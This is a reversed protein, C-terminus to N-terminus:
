DGGSRPRVQYPIIAESVALPREDRPRATELVLGRLREQWRTRDAPKTIVVYPGLREGEAPALPQTSAVAHLYEGGKSSTVRILKREQDPVDPEGPIVRPQGARLSHDSEADNPLLQVVSDPEVSWVGVFCDRDAEVRISIEDGETLVTEGQSGRTGGIFELKLAFDGRLLRGDPHVAAPAAPKMSAIVKQSAEDSWAATRKKSLEAVSLPSRDLSSKITLWTLPAILLLAAATGIAFRFRRSGLRFVFDLGHWRQPSARDIAKKLDVASAFRQTPDKALCRMCLDSVDRPLNPKREIPPVINGASAAAWLSMADAAQHPPRGTLLAYLVAGLGFIDSRPDIREAEGRAQEPAMYALTGSAINLDESALHTALGFDVLRPVGDDGVMINSPKLDRHLLGCAHVAALGDAVKGILELAAATDLPKSRHLRDLNCGPIYEVVLYPVGDHRDAGFCQAVNPSRVRALARGEKLLQEQKRADRAQHYLKIVVHRQLDPDFAVFASGQGGVGLARRIEFKGIRAPLVDKFDFTAGQGGPSSRNQTPLQHVDNTDPGASDSPLVRVLSSLRHLDDVVLRLPKVEPNDNSALPSPVGRELADV